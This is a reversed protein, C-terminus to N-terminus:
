MHTQCLMRYNSPVEEQGIKSPIWVVIVFQSSAQESTPIAALSTPSICVLYIYVVWGM